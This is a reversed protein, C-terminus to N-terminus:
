FLNTFPLKCYSVAPRYKYYSEPNGGYIIEPGAGATNGTLPIVRWAPPIRVSGGDFWNIIGTAALPQTAVASEM